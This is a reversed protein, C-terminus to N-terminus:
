KLAEIIEQVETLTLVRCETVGSFPILNDPMKTYKKLLELELINYDKRIDSTAVLTTDKYVSGSIVEALRRPPHNSVGIKYVNDFLHMLYVKSELGRCTPCGTGKLAHAKPEVLFDGHIPCTVTIKEFANKYEAKDYTYFGNHTETSEEIFQELPKRKLDGILDGKCKACGYGQMHSDPTQEFVGHTPCTIKIKTRNNVYNSLEYTYKDGHVKKSKEIFQKTTLRKTKTSCSPCKLGNIHKSPSLEFEGHEECIIIVPDTTRKVQVKSYDYNGGYLSKFRYVWIETKVDEPANRKIQGSRTVYDPWLETWDKM